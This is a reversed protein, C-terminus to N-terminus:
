SLLAVLTTTPVLIGLMVPSANKNGLKLGFGLAVATLGAEVVSVVQTANAVLQRAGGTLSQLHANLQDVQLQPANTILHVNLATSDVVSPIGVEPAHHSQIEMYQIASMDQHAFQVTQRDELLGLVLMASSKITGTLQQVLMALHVPHVLRLQVSLSHGLWAPCCLQLFRQLVITGQLVLQAHHQGEQQITAMEANTIRNAM